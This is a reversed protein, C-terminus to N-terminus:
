RVLRERQDFTQKGSWARDTVRIVRTADRESIKTQPPFPIRQSGVRTELLNERSRLGLRDILLKAPVSRWDRRRTRRDRGVLDGRKATGFWKQDDAGYGATLPLRPAPLRKAGSDDDALQM